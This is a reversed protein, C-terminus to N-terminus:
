STGDPRMGLEEATQLVAEARSLVDDPAAPSNIVCEAARVESETPRPDTDKWQGVALRERDFASGSDSVEPHLKSWTVPGDGPLALDDYSTGSMTLPPGEPPLGAGRDIAAIASVAVAAVQVWEARAKTMDRESLAEFIEELEILGWSREGKAFRDKTMMEMSRYTRGLLYIGTPDQSSIVPHDQQGWKDYQNETEGFVEGLINNVRDWRDLDSDKRPETAM